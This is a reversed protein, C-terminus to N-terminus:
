LRAWSSQRCACTPMQSAKAPLSPVLQHNPTSKDSVSQSVAHLPAYSRLVNCPYAVVPAISVCVRIAVDCGRCRPAWTIEGSSAKRALVCMCVALM